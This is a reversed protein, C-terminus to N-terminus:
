SQITHAGIADTSERGRFITKEFFRQLVVAVSVSVNLSATGGGYQEIRVFSDCITMQKSTMGQGENGMMFAASTRFPQQELSISLPDIEIGIIPISNNSHEHLNGSDNLYQSTMQNKMEECCYMSKIRKVCEELSDLRVIQMKGRKICDMLAQPIDTSSSNADFNFKKQGVVFVISVGFAASSLLINKINQRKQVNTLIIYAAPNSCYHEHQNKTSPM